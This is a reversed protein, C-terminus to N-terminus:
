SLLSLLTDSMTLYRTKFVMLLPQNARRPFHVSARWIPPQCQRQLITRKPNKARVEPNTHGSEKMATPKTSPILPSQGFRCVRKSLTCICEILSRKFFSFPFSSHQKRWCSPIGSHVSSPTHGLVLDQLKIGEAEPQLSAQRFATPPTRRFVSRKSLVCQLWPLASQATPKNKDAQRRQGIFADTQKWDQRLTPKSANRHLLAACVSQCRQYTPDM